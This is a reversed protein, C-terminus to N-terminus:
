ANIIEEQLKEALKLLEWSEKGNIFSVYDERGAKSGCALKRLRVLLENLTSDVM